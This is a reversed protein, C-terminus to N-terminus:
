PVLETDMKMEGPPVNDGMAGPKRWVRYRQNEAKYWM